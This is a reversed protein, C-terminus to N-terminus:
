YSDWSHPQGELPAPKLPKSLRMTVAGGNSEAVTIERQLAETNDRIRPHWIAVRYGGGPVEASWSGHSDTRGFFPADTVFLYALMQDHINCGLTVVGPQEFRVPPNPNGHYLPLQFRKTPSFSYIQHSVSDSNPFAVTSNVPIVLLDPAFARNVQDMIAQVAPAPHAHGDTPRATVVVGGLPRSDPSLVTVTLTAGLSRDIFGSFALGLLLALGM